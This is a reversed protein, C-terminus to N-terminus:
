YANSDPFVIEVYGSCVYTGDGKDLEVKYIGEEYFTIESFFIYDWDTEVNFPETSIYRLEGNEVKYIKLDVDTTGIVTGIPALNVMVTLYGGTPPIEFIDSVGVERGNAEDYTECFYLLQKQQSHVDTAFIYLFIGLIFFIKKM